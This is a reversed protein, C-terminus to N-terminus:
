LDLSNRYERLIQGPVRNSDLATEEVKGFHWSHTSVRCPVGGSGDRKSEVM